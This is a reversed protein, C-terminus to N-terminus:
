HITETGSEYFSVDLPNRDVFRPYRYKPYGTMVAGTIKKGEPINFLKLLPSHEQLAINEFIGAWCSGLGLTPAYLELYALSLISNERGRPFNKDAIALVLAPAGRLITDIGQEHYPKFFNDRRQSFREDRELGEVTMAVARDIIDKNDIIKYSVGQLNSGSPAYHAINVLQILKERPVPAAKYSRISRRSRLFSEAEEPSLKPLSRSSAQNALPTRKNDIAGKPCVAVCHGCAICQQPYVEEPGKDGLKLAQEPCESICVGCKACKDQDVTILSM